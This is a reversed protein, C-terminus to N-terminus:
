NDEDISIYKIIRYPWETLILALEPSDKLIPCDTTGIIKSLVVLVLILASQWAVLFAVIDAVPVLAVKSCWIVGFFIEALTQLSNYEAKLLPLHFGGQGRGAM